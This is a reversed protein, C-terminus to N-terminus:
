SSVCGIAYIMLTPFYGGAAGNINQTNHEFHAIARLTGTETSHPTAVNSKDSIYELSTYSHDMDLPELIRTKIFAEWSMGSVRAIVEGAVFYLLNDYDFKTRFASVPEFYQFNSLVDKITFDSGDPFFMLDGAGLGLGSRHTLLDQINFNETVYANYMKFEPIHDKVKDQWSLKGDDVLISLAATTFAKTNSAIAFNTHQDVKEGTEISKLGYGKNHVIQGDKVVGVAAGAVDFKRLAEEVLQDIESSTMQAYATSSVLFKALLLLMFIQRIKEDNLIGKRISNFNAQPHAIYKSDTRSAGVM